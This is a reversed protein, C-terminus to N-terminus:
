MKESTCYPTKFYNIVYNLYDNKISRHSDTISNINIIMIM